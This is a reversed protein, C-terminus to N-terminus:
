NGLDRGHNEDWHSFFSRMGETFFFGSTKLYLSAYLRLFSVDDCAPFISAKSGSLRASVNVFPLVLVSWACSLRQRLCLDSRRVISTLIYDFKWGNHFSIAKCYKGGFRLLKYQGQPKIITFNKTITTSNAALYVNLCHWLNCDLKADSFLDWCIVPRAWLVSAINQQSMISLIIKIIYALRSLSGVCSILQKFINKLLCFTSLAIFLSSLSCLM